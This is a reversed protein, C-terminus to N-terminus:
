SNGPLSLQRPVSFEGSSSAQKVTQAVGPCALPPMGHAINTAVQLLPGAQKRLLDFSCLGLEFFEDLLQSALVAGSELIEPGLKIGYVCEHPDLM